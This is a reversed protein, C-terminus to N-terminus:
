RCLQLVLATKGSGVPGGIGVTFGRQEFDRYKWYDEALQDISTTYRGPGTYSYHSRISTFQQQHQQQVPVHQRNNTCVTSGHQYLYHSSCQLFRSQISTRATIIAAATSSLTATM